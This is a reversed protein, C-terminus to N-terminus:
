VGFLFIKEFFVANTCFYLGARNQHGCSRGNLYEVPNGNPFFCFGKRHNIIRYDFGEIRQDTLPAGATGEKDMKTISKMQKTRIAAAMARHASSFLM